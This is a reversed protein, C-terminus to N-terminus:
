LGLVNMKREVTAALNRKIYFVRALELSPHAMRAQGTAVPNGEGAKNCNNLLTLRSRRVRENEAEM